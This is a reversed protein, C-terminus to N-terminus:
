QGERKEIYWFVWGNTANGTISKAAASPNKYVTDGVMYGIGKEASVVTMTYQAKKFKRNFTDGVKPLCHSKRIPM